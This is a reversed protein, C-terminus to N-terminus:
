CNWSCAKNMILVLCCFSVQLLWNNPRKWRPELDSTRSRTPLRKRLSARSTVFRLETPKWPCMWRSCQRNWSVWPPVFPLQARAAYWGRWTSCRRFCLQWKQAKEINENRDFKPPVPVSWLTLAARSFWRRRRCGGLWPEESAPASASVLIPREFRSLADVRDSPPDLDPKATSSALPTEPRFVSAPRSGALARAGETARESHARPRTNRSRKGASVHRRTNLSFIWRPMPGTSCLYPLQLAVKCSKTSDVTRSFM